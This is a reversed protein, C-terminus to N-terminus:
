LSIKSQMKPKREKKKLLKIRIHDEDFDNKSM